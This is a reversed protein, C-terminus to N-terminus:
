CDSCSYGWVSVLWDKQTLKDCGSEDVYVLHYSRFASRNNLHFYRLDPNREKAVRRATKKSWNISRLARSISSPSVLVDFEDWLFIAMEELYLGPKELLHEKLVELMQLTISRCGGGGNPPAKTSGFYHLNSRIAKLDLIMDRILDHQSPALNLARNQFFHSVIPVVLILMGNYYM